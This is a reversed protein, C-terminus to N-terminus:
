PISRVRLGTDVVKWDVDHERTPEGEQAADHREEGVRREADLEHGM